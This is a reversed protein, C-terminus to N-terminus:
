HRAQHHHTAIVFERMPMIAGWGQDFRILIAGCDHEGIRQPPAWQAGPLQALLRVYKADVGFCHPNDPLPINCFRDALRERPIDGAGRCLDCPYAGLVDASPTEIHGTDHCVYCPTFDGGICTSCTSQTLWLSGQCKPCQELDQLKPHALLPAFEGWSTELTEVLQMHLRDLSPEMSKTPTSTCLPADDEPIAILAGGDCAFVMGLARFNGSLVHRFENPGCHLRRMLDHVSPM